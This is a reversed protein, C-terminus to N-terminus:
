YNKESLRKIDNNKREEAHLKLHDFKNMVQLNNPLNNHKNGDIHHVHEDTKLKRGIMQEAIVRHEHKGLYKKYTTDKIDKVKKLQAERANLRRKYEPTIYLEDGYRKFRAYHMGCYGNAGKSTDKKCENVKCFRKEKTFLKKARISSLEKQLCGCSKTKGSTLNSGSVCVKNGCKCLCNWFFSGKKDKKESQNLVTLREYIFGTRDIKQM